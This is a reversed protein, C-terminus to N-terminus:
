ACCTGCASRHCTTASSSTTSFTHEPSRPTALLSRSMPSISMTLLCEAICSRAASVVIVGQLSPHIATADKWGKPATQGQGWTSYMNKAIADEGATYSADTLVQMPKGLEAECLLLLAEGGSAYSCCYNASKSSMDALYIGKGFM